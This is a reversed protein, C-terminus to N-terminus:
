HGHSWKNRPSEFVLIPDEGQSFGALNDVQAFELIIECFNEKNLEWYAHFKGTLTFTWGAAEFQDQQIQVNGDLEDKTAGWIELDEDIPPTNLHVHATAFFMLVYNRM